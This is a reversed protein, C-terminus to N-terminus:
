DSGSELACYERWWERLEACASGDRGANTWLVGGADSQLAGVPRPGTTASSLFIEDAACLDDWPAHAETLRWPSTRERLRACIAARAIGPLCGTSLAPTFIDGGRRWFVNSRAGECVDGNQDAYLAEDCGRDRAELAMLHWPAYSTSKVGRIPGRADLHHPSAWLRAAAAPAQVQGPQALVVERVGAERHWRGESRACLTLRFVGEEVHNASIVERVVASWRAEWAAAAERRAEDVAGEPEPELLRLRAADGRLRSLHRALLTARGRHVAGTTFVGWGVTAAAEFALMGAQEGRCIRGDLGVWAENM